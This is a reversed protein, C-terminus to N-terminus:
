VDQRRGFWFWEWGILRCPQGHGPSDQSDPKVAAVTAGAVADSDSQARNRVRKAALRVFSQLCSFLGSSSRRVLWSLWLFLCVSLCHFGFVFRCFCLEIVGPEYDAVWDFTSNVKAPVVTNGIRDAAAAPISV